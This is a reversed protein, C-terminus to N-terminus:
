RWGNELLGCGCGCSCSLSLPLGVSVVVPPLQLRLRLLLPQLQKTLPLFHCQCWHDGSNLAFGGDRASLHPAIAMTTVMMAVVFNRHCLQHRHHPVNTVAALTSTVIVIESVMSHLKPWCLRSESSTHSGPNQQLLRITHHGWGLHPALSLPQHEHLISM